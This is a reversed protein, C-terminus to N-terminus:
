SAELRYLPRLYIKVKPWPRQRSVLVMTFARKQKMVLSSSICHSAHFAGPVPYRTKSYALSSVDWWQIVRSLMHSLYRIIVSVTGVYWAEHILSKFVTIM